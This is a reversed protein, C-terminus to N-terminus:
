GGFSRDYATQDGQRENVPRLLEAKFVRGSVEGNHGSVGDRDRLGSICKGYSKQSIMAEATEPLRESDRSFRQSLGLWAFTREVWRRPLAGPL